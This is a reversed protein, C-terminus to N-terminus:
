VVTAPARSTWPRLAQRHQLRPARTTNSLCRRIPARRATIDAEKGPALRDLTDTWAM